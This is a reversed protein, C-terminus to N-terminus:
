RTGACGRSPDGEGQLFFVPQGILFSAFTDSVPFPQFVFFGNTAIGFLVNIQDHGYGGGFKLEHRGHDV